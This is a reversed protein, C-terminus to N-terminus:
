DKYYGHDWVDPKNMAEKVEEPTVDLRDTGYNKIYNKSVQGSRYPQLIESEYKKRDEKIEPTTLEITEGLSPLARQEEICKKCYVFGVVPQLLARNKNCRLCKPKM